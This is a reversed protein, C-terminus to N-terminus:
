ALVEPAFPSPSLLSLTRSITSFIYKVMFLFFRRALFRLRLPLTPRRALYILVSVLLSFNHLPFSVIAKWMMRVIAPKPRGASTRLSYWSRPQSMTPSCPVQCLPYETKIYAPHITHQLLSLPPSAPPFFSWPPNPNVIQFLIMRAWFCEGSISLSLIRFIVSSNRPLALVTVKTTGLGM